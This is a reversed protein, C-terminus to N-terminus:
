QSLPCRRKMYDTIEDESLDDASNLRDNVKAQTQMTSELQDAKAAAAQAGTTVTEGITGVDNVGNAVLLPLNFRALLKTFPGGFKLRAARSLAQRAKQYFGPAQAQAKAVEGEIHNRNIAKSLDQAQKLAAPDVPTPPNRLAKKGNEVTAEAAQYDRTRRKATAEEGEALWDCDTLGYPDMISIPDSSDFEFLNIGGGEELPDRNIWRQLGPEYYRYLYYVLGSNPHFEKSSFRYLNAEALPGSMALINGYPDYNYRAVVVGNTGILGTINGNGDAHYYAHPFQLNSIESRALLGGIGGADELSGSLDNGRTYTVATLPILTSGNPTYHREQVVLRGDYVYRVENTQTWAGGSWAFEKRVRRRMFGDYVFDSKWANSVLVTVLQNEADYFFVRQGDNTLNGRGDYYCTASAPLWTIVTNTDVRGYSDQAVAEFTNTGNLLVVNGRAFTNDGYVTATQAANNNDKVMVSTPETSVSGAVTLSGSRTLTTLQNLSDVGFSQVLANNTRYNLNWAADYAYGFQEHPRATTDDSEFGKATELQGIHDYTYDVFNGDKFTQKRRQHGDNYEYAHSNVTASQADKLVTSLLRGIGDHTNEIQSGCPLNLYQPLSSATSTGDWATSKYQTHFVGAASTVNTLRRYDDYAYGQVWSGANEQELSFGSRMRAAYTYDIRDHSWPGDEYALLGGDTWGFTTSGVGDVINTLRGLGDYRLVVPSTATGGSYVINTLNGVPDFRYATNTNINGVQWRNTLHDEADYQYRFIETNLADVKNTVRGYQDYNWRTVQHKGDELSKIAGAPNYTFALTEINANTQYLVQGRADRVFRTVEGLADFYNTLGRDTYEFTEMGAGEVRRELLRGINDFKNTTSVGNRDVLRLLRGYDDYVRTEWRLLTGDGRGVDVTTLQNRDNYGFQAVYDSNDSVTELRSLADYGYSVQYNDPYVATSRRGALDHGYSTLNTQQGNYRTILEPSGCGCYSFTTTQSNANTVGVLQRVQNYGYHRWNGLRDRAAVLDLKDWVNSRYGNPYHTAVLRNLADWVNTAVLGLENTQIYVNGNTYTFYNTSFGVEAQMQLFGSWSGSAYYVNTVVLGGPSQIGTVRVNSDHSYHIEQGEANTVSTLLNTLTAHYGYGRVLENNPGVVRLLRRGDDDYYQNYTISSGGKYYTISTPRGWSNRGIETMTSVGEVYNTGNHVIKVVRKLTGGSMPSSQGQYKYFVQAVRNSSHDPDLSPGATAGCSESLTSTTGEKVLWHKLSARWYDQVPMELYNTLGQQSIDKFQNRDWHYTNRNNIASDDSAYIGGAGLTGILGSDRYAYLQKDGNAETIEIARNLTYNGVAGEFHRFGTDGYPTHLNTIVGTDGDYTFGSVIGITDTISTLRGASDYLFRATRGYPDTIATVFAPYSTNTYSLTCERGDKDIVKLLRSVTEGGVVENTWTFKTSRGYRDVKASLLYNTREGAVVVTNTYLSVTGRPFELGRAASSGAGGGGGESLLVAASESRAQASSQLSESSEEIVGASFRSGSLPELTGDVAVGRAGGGASYNTVYDGGTWVLMGIWDCQWNTGFGAIKTDRLDARQKYTLKFDMWQGSAMRYRLPTDELWLNIYPESVRWVAMGPCSGGSGGDCPEGGFVGDNPAPPDCNDPDEETSQGDDGDQPTSPDLYTAYATTGFGSAGLIALALLLPSLAGFVFQQRAAKGNHSSNSKIASM